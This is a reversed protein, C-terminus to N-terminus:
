AWDTCKIWREAVYGLAELRRSSIASAPLSFRQLSEWSATSPRRSPASRKTPCRPPAPGAEACKAASGQCVWLVERPRARSFFVGALHSRLCLGGYKRIM